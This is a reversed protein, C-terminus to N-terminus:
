PTRVPPSLGQPEASTPDGLRQARGGFAIAVLLFWGWGVALGALVDSVWHVGLLARSAAVAAAILAALAALVARGVRPLGRGLVLAVAAWAAAAATSHGSPFSPGTVDVLQLVAPRDRDVIVKLANVLILQGVGVVAVFVFVETNRRRLYDALAVTALAATIVATSGLDTVVDLVHIADTTAHESGWRAVRDDIEALTSSREILDLLVGVVVGVAGVIVFAATLLFGGRTQRDFRERVFRALKPRHDLWSAVAREPVAPDIPDVALARSASVAFAGVAALVAVAVVVLTVTM